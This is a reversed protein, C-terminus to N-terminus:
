VSDANIPSSRAGGGALAYAAVAGHVGQLRHAGLARVPRDLRQVFADSAVVAEDLDGALGELRSLCNVAPGIATFDLRDDAGINALLAQGFHLAAVSDFGGRRAHVIEHAARAAAEAAGAEGGPGTAPIVALVGDGILKLVEGGEAEIAGITHSLYANLDGILRDTPRTEAAETFGRADAMILAGHFREVGVRRIQGDLIRDAALEGTYLRLLRSLTRDANLWGVVAELAPRLRILYRRAGAPLDSAGAAAFLAGHRTGHRDALPMAIAEGRGGIPSLRDVGPDPTDAGLEVTRGDCMVRQVISNRYQATQEIGHFRPVEHLTGDRVDGRWVLARGAFLPHLQRLGLVSLRVDIGDHRVREVLASWFSELNAHKPGDAVIWAHTADARAAFDHTSPVFAPDTDFTM